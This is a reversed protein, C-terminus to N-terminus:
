PGDGDRYAALLGGAERTAALLDLVGIGSVIGRVWGSRGLGALATPGLFATAQDWIPTWPVALLFFGLISFLYLNLALRM